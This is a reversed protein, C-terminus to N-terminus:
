IWENLHFGNGISIEKASITIKATMPRRGKANFYENYKIAYAETFFLEKSTANIERKIFAISGNKTEFNNFMWDSFFINSTSELFFTIIGGRTISSPRGTPDTEQNLSYHCKLTNYESGQIKLIAKFSM